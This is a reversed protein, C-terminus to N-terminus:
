PDGRTSHPSSSLQERRVESDQTMRCKPEVNTETSSENIALDSSVLPNGKKVEKQERREHAFNAKRKHNSSNRASLRDDVSNLVVKGGVPQLFKPAYIDCKTYCKFIPFFIDIQSPSESSHMSSTAYLGYCSQFGWLMSCM